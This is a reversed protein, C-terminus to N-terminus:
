VYVGNYFRNLKKEIERETNPRTRQRIIQILNRYKNDEKRLLSNDKILTDNLLYLDKIKNELSIVQKKLDNITDLGHVPDYGDYFLTRCEVYKARLVEDYKVIDQFKLWYNHVTAHNCNFTRAIHSSGLNLDKLIDCYVMRANVYKRLRTKKTLDLAFVGNVIRKLKEEQQEKLEM